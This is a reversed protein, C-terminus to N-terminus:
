YLTYPFYLNSIIDLDRQIYVYYDGPPADPIDVWISYRGWSYVNVTYSGATDSDMKVVNSGQTAGFGWGEIAIEEKGFDGYDHIGAIHMLLRQYHINSIVAGAEKISFAYLHDWDIPPELWGSPSLWILSNSWAMINKPDVPVGNCLLRRKGGRQNGLNQDVVLVESPRCTWQSEPYVLKVDEITVNVAGLKAIFVDQGGYLSKDGSSPAPFNDSSTFGTLYASSSGDLALAYAADNKDGGLTLRASM